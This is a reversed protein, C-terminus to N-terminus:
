TLIEPPFMKKIIKQFEIAQIFIPSQPPSFNKFIGWPDVAVEAVAVRNIMVGFAQKKERLYLKLEEYTVGAGNAAAIEWLSALDCQVVKEVYAVGVLRQVPSSAYLVLAGVRQAPWSRRLEVKKTGALILSAYKPKIPLLVARGGIADATESFLNTAMASIVSYKGFQTPM